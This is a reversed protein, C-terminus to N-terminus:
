QLHSEHWWCGGCVEQLLLLAIYKIRTIEAIRCVVVRYITENSAGYELVTTCVMLQDDYVSSRKRCDFYVSKTAHVRASNVRCWPMTCRHRSDTYELITSSCSPHTDSYKRCCRYHHRHTCRRTTFADSSSNEQATVVRRKSFSKSDKEVSGPPPKTAM